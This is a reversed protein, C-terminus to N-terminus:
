IVSRGLFSVNLLVNTYLQVGARQEFPWSAQINKKKPYIIWSLYKNAQWFCLITCASKTVRWHKRIQNHEKRHTVGSSFRWREEELAPAPVEINERHVAYEAYWNWSDCLCSNIWHSFNCYQNFLSKSKGKLNSGAKKKLIQSCQMLPIKLLFLSAFRSSMVLILNDITELILIFHIDGVGTWNTHIWYRHSIHYVSSQAIM